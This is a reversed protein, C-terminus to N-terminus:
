NSNQCCKQKKTKGRLLYVMRNLPLGTTHCVDKRCALVRLDYLEYLSNMCLCFFYFFFSFVLVCVRDDQLTNINISFNTPHDLLM